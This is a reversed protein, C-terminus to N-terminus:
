QTTVVCNVKRALWAYTSFAAGCAPDFHWVAQACRFIHPGTLNVPHVIFM